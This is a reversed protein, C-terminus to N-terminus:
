STPRAPVGVVTSGPPVDDIVVAGAGVVAVDGVEVHDLVTAGAGVFADRGVMVDGALTANPGVTSGAGLTGDHSVNAASDVLAHSEVSVGPGLYAGATVVAGPDVKARKSVTAAPDVVAFPDFGVDSLEAALDRRTGGDPGLAVVFRDRDADFKPLTDRGGVVEIGDVTTGHTTSDDDLFVLNADPEARSLVDRVVRGQEGACYILRTKRETAGRSPRKSDM